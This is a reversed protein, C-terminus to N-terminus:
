AEDEMIEYLKEIEIHNEEIMTQVEDIEGLLKKKYRELNDVQREKEDAEQEKKHVEDKLFIFKKDSDDEREYAGEEREKLEDMQQTAKVIFEKLQEAKDIAEDERRCM